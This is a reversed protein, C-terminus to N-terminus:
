ATAPPIHALFVGCAAAIRATEHLTLALGVVALHEYRGSRGHAAGARGQRVVVGLNVHRDVRMEASLAVDLGVRQRDPRGAASATDSMGKPPGIESTRTARMLPSYQM